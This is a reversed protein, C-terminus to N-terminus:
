KTCSVELQRLSLSGRHHLPWLLSALKSDSVTSSQAPWSREHLGGMIAEHPGTMIPEQLGRTIPEHPGAIIAQHLGGM